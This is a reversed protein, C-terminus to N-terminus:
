ITWRGDMWYDGTGMGAISQVFLGIRDHKLSTRAKWWDQECVGEGIKNV